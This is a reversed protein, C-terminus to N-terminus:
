QTKAGPEQRAETAADYVFSAIIASMQMLGGKQV